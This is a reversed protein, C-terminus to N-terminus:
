RSHSPLRRLWFAPPHSSILANCALSFDPLAASPSQLPTLLDSRQLSFDALRCFLLYAVCVQPQLLAIYDNCAYSYCASSAVSCSCVACVATPKHDDLYQRFSKAADLDMERLGTRDEFPEQNPPLVAPLPMKHGWLEQLRKIDAEVTNSATEFRCARTSPCSSCNQERFVEM